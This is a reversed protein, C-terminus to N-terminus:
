IYILIGNDAFHQKLEILLVSAISDTATQYFRDFDNFLYYITKLEKNWRQSNSHQSCLFGGKYFSFDCLDYSQNCEVCSNSNVMIGYHNLCQAALYLILKKNQGESLRKIIQLYSKYVSYCDTKINKLLNIAKNTFTINSMDQFNITMVQNARKLRGISGKKRAPFYEIESVCGPLLNARNKSNAKNIGRALLRIQGYSGFLDVYADDPFENHNEINLVIFTNIIEAM